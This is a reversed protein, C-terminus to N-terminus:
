RCSKWIRSHICGTDTAAKGSPKLLGKGDYFRLTRPTTRALRAFAGTTYCQEKSSQPCTNQEEPMQAANGKENEM